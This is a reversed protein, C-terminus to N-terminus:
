PVSPLFSLKHCLKPTTGGRTEEGTVLTGGALQHFEPLLDTVVSGKSARDEPLYPAKLEFYGMQRLQTNPPPTDQVGATPNQPPM